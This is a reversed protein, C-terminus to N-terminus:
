RAYCADIDAVAGQTDHAIALGSVVLGVGPIFKAAGGLQAALPTFATLHYGAAGFGVGTLDGHAASNLLSGGAPALGVGAGVLSEPATVGSVILGATDLAISGINKGLASQLCQARRSNDPTPVRSQPPAGKDPIVLQPSGGEGAGGSSINVFSFSSGQTKSGVLNLDGDLDLGGNGNSVFVTGSSDVFRTGKPALCEPCLPGGAFSAGAELGAPDVANTPNNHVYAYWNPGDGYGIPDTQM